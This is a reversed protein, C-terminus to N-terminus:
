INKSRKVGKISFARSSFEARAVFQNTQESQYLQFSLNFIYLAKWFLSLIINKNMEVFIKKTFTKKKIKLYGSFFTLWTLPAVLSSLSALLGVVLFHYYKVAEKVTLHESKEPFVRYKGDLQLFFILKSDLGLSFLKYTHM